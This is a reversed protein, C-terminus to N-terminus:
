NVPKLYKQLKSEEKPEGSAKVGSRSSPTLGLDGALQRLQQRLSVTAKLFGKQIAAEASCRRAQREFRRLEGKTYCYEEFVTLDGVTLVGKQILEAYLRGWEESAAGTLSEPPDAGIGAPALNPERENLPRHGPNGKLVRLVTPM